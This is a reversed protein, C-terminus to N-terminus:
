CRPSWSSRAASDTLLWSSCASQDAFRALSVRMRWGGSFKKTERNQMETTFGLGQAHDALWRTLTRRVALIKRARGEASAAGIAALESHVQAASLHVSTHPPPHAKELEQILADNEEGADIRQQLFALQKTLKARMEDAALVVQVAPLESTGVQAVHIPQLLANVARRKSACCSMLTPPSRCSASTSTSSCRPRAMGTKACHITHDILVRRCGNPGILGYRRGATISLTANEFLGKGRASLSFGEVKIDSANDLAADAAKSTTRIAVNFNGELKMEEEM